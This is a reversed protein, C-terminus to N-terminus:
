SRSSAGDPFPLQQLPRTNAQQCAASAREARVQQLKSLMFSRGLEREAYLANHVRCVLRLNDATAAGGLAYPTGHHHVELWDRAACRRGDASVFTCQGGDRAYVERRVSRPIYRSMSRPERARPAPPAGAPDVRTDAASVPDVRTDAARLPDAHQEPGPVLQVLPAPHSHPPHDEATLERAGACPRQAQPLGVPKEALSPEETRSSDSRKDDSAASRARPSTKAAAGQGFRKKLTKDLLLDVALEVITALNGDPVRHRLLQQLQELKDHLGQEVSLQLKYRGPSLPACSAQSRPSQLAFAAKHRDAAFPLSAASSPSPSPDASIAAAARLALGSLAHLASTEHPAASEPAPSSSEPSPTSCVPTRTLSATTTGDAHDPQVRSAVRAMETIQLARRQPLKRLQNPVDPKPAIEAVLREVERKSKGRARELLQVHNDPTSYPGLLKIGTLHLAGSAFLDLILPFKRGMRAAHIRLYAEADSMHLAQVSYDFMSAYAQERYLGRADMEGMHMLLEVSLARDAAVLQRLKVVLEHDTCRSVDRQTSSQEHM